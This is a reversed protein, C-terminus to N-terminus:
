ARIAPNLEKVKGVFTKGDSISVQADKRSFMKKLLGSDKDATNATIYFQNILPIRTISKIKSIEIEYKIKIPKLFGKESVFFLKDKTLIIYGSYASTSDEGTSQYFKAEQWELIGSEDINVERICDKFAM